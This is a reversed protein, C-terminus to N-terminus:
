RALKDLNYFTNTPIYSSKNLTILKISRKKPNFGRARASKKSCMGINM